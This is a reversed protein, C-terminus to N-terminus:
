NKTLRLIEKVSFELYGIFEYSSVFKGLESQKRVEFRLRDATVPILLPYLFVQNIFTSHYKGKGKTAHRPCTSLPKGGGFDCFLVLKSGDLLLDRTELVMIRLQESKRKISPPMKIEKCEADPDEDHFKVATDEPGTVQFSVKM